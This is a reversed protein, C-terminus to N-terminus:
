PLLRSPHSDNEDKKPVPLNRKAKPHAARDRKVDEEVLNFYFNRIKTDIHIYSRFDQGTDAGGAALWLARRRYWEKKLGNYEIKQEPTMIM